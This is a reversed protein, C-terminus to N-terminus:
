FVLNKNSTSFIRYLPWIKGVLEEIWEVMRTNLDLKNSDSISKNDAFNPTTM